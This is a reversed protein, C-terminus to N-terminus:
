SGKGHNYVCYLGRFLLHEDYVVEHRCLPHILPALGGTMVTAAEAGLEENIRDVLGDIMSAAGYLAGAQMCETTNQGILRDPLRLAVEGLQSARSCLAALSTQLGSIIMGGIFRGRNDVVNITTATGMDVVILPCPYQSKAGVVDAIRDQGVREPQDVVLEIGPVVDGSGMVMMEFGWTQLVQECVSHTLEPVVSSVIGGSLTPWQEQMTKLVSSAGEPGGPADKLAMTEIRVADLVQGRAMVGFVINSNGIDIVLIEEM